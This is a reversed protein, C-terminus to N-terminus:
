QESPPAVVSAPHSTRLDGAPTVLHQQVNFETTSWRGAEDRVLRTWAANAVEEARGVALVQEETWGECVYRILLVVADHSVVLVRRGEHLREIDFLVSRLRLVVDAWSEGGPARYYFKGLWHRRQAEGPYRTRIGHSTLTDLIGLEKDRLREDLRVTLDLAAAGLLAAATQHARSYPSCWVADPRLGAGETGLWQGLAEAQAIGRESLPVDADRAEVEIVEAGAAEARERAVNATSEAHRVLILEVSFM